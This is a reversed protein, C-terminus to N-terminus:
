TFHLVFNRKCGASLDPGFKGTEKTFYLMHPLPM